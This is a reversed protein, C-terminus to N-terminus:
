PAPDARLCWYRPSKRDVAFFEDVVAGKWIKKLEASLLLKHLDGERFSKLNGAVHRRMKDTIKSRPRLPKYHAVFLQQKDLKGGVVQYKMVYAYDYLDDPPLKGPIKVLRATVQLPPPPKDAGAASGLLLLLVPLLLAPAPALAVRRTTRM